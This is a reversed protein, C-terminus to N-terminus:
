GTLIATVMARNRTLLSPTGRYSWSWIVTVGGGPQDVLTFEGPLDPAVGATFNGPTTAGSFTPAVMIDASKSASLTAHSRLAGEVLWATRGGVQRTTVLTDRLFPRNALWQAMDTATTGAGPDRQWSYDNRVPMADEIVTVGTTDVDNRYFEVGGPVVTPKLDFMSPVTVTVPIRNTIRLRRSGLCTVAAEHCVNNLHETRTTTHRDAPLDPQNRQALAITGAIAVALLVVGAWAGTRRRHSRHMRRLMDDPDLTRTASRHLQETATRAMEDFTM